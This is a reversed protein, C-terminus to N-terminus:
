IREPPPIRVRKNEEAAKKAASCSVLVSLANVASTYSQQNKRVHNVFHNIELQYADARRTSLTALNPFKLSVLSESAARWLSVELIDTPNANLFFSPSVFLNQATGHINLNEMVSSSLWSIVGVGSRGKPYEALFVCYDEVPSDLYTSSYASVAHPFDDFVYNLM